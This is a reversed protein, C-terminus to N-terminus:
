IREPDGASDQLPARAPDGGGLEIRDTTSQPRWTHCDGNAEWVGGGSEAM